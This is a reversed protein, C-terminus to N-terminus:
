AVKMLAKELLEIMIDLKSNMYTIQTNAQNLYSDRATTWTNNYSEYNAKDNPDSPNYPNNNIQSQANEARRILESALRYSNNYSNLAIDYSEKLEIYVNKSAQEISTMTDEFKSSGQSIISKLNTLDDYTLKYNQPWNGCVSDLDQLMDAIKGIFEEFKDLVMTDDACIKSTEYEKADKESVEMDYKSIAKSLAANTVEISAM